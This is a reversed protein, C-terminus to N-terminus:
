APGRMSSQPSRHLLAEASARGRISQLLRRSCQAGRLLAECPPTSQYEEHGWESRHTHFGSESCRRSFLQAPRHSAESCRSRYRELRRATRSTCAPLTDLSDLTSGRSDARCISSFPFHIPSLSTRDLLLLAMRVLLEIRETRIAKARINPAPSASACAGILIPNMEGIVPAIAWAPFSM